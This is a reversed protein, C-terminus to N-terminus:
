SIGRFLLPVAILFAPRRRITCVRLPLYDQKKLRHSPPINESNKPPLEFIFDGLWILFQHLCVRARRAERGSSEAELITITKRMM